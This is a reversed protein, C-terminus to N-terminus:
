EQVTVILTNLLHALRCGALAIREESIRRASQQYNDEMPLHYAVMIALKHSESAWQTPNLDTAEPHCPWKKEIQNAMNKIQAPSYHKKQSFAGGGKDWYAHLNKAVSKEKLLYENGGRDGHTLSKSFRSAAHLPQHIDGVVHLLIRLAIGKDFDTAYKNRMLKSANKIAWLANIKDPAHLTTNDESFPLDIYHMSAFWNVDQYRLSDLWSAANVLTQPKYVKDLAHNYASCMHLAEPTMHNYAIQAVLRHGVSNWAYTTAHSLLLFLGVGLSSRKLTWRCM